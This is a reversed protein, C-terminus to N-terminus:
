ILKYGTCLPELSKCLNLIEHNIPEGRKTFGIFTSGPTINRLTKQSQLKGKDDYLNQFISITRM